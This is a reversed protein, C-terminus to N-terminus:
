REYLAWGYARLFKHLGEDRLTKCSVVHGTPPSEDWGLCVKTKKNSM